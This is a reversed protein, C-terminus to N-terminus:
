LYRAEPGAEVGGAIPDHHRQPTVHNEYEVKFQPDLSKVSQYLYEVFTILNFKVVRPLIAWYIQLTAKREGVSIQTYQPAKIYYFVWHTLEDPGLNTHGADVLDRIVRPIEMCAKWNLDVEINTIETQFELLYRSETINTVTWSNAWTINSPVGSASGVQKVYKRTRKRKRLKHKPKAKKTHRGTNKRYTRKRYTRRRTKRWSQPKRSRRRSMNM